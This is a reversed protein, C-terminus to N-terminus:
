SDCEKLLDGEIRYREGTAPCILDDGLREGSRSVWGIRVAPVGAMLAFAPVNRTVVAGAAIFCYRGLDHGCVITANAGITAGRGVITKRFEARRNIFARPNNVNTFVCSPGCFVDDDLDVGEFLSVNNQIKCGDGVRVRPGIMVNQGIVCDKGIAVEGLVHSFHWIRTGKGITVGDDVYASEHIFVEAFSNDAPM